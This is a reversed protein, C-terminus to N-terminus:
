ESGSAGSQEASMPRGGRWCRGGGASHSFIAPPGGALRRLANQLRRHQAQTCILPPQELRVMEPEVVDPAVGEVAEQGSVPTLQESVLLEGLEVAPILAPRAHRRAQQSGGEEQLHM